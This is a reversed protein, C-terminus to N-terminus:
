PTTARVASVASSPPRRATNLVGGIGDEDRSNEGSFTGPSETKAQFGESKFGRVDQGLGQLETEVLAWEEYTRNTVQLVREPNEKWKPIYQLKTKM